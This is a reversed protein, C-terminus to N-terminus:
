TATTWCQKKSNITESHNTATRCRLSLLYEDHRTGIQDLENQYKGDPLQRMLRKSTEVYLEKIDMYSGGLLLLEQGVRFGRSEMNERNVEFAIAKKEANYTLNIMTLARDSAGDTIMLTPRGELERYVRFLNKSFESSLYLIDINELQSENSFYFTNFPKGRILYSPEVKHLEHLLITDADM